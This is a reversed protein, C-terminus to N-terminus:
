RPGRSGARNVTFQDQKVPVDTLGNDVALLPQAPTLRHHLGNRAVKAICKGTRSSERCAVKAVHPPEKAGVRRLLNPSLSDGFSLSDPRVFASRRVHEGVHWPPVM